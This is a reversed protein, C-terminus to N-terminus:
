NQKIILLSIGGVIFVIIALFLYSFLLGKFDIIVALIPLMIITFLSNIFASISIVTARHYSNTEQHIADKIVINGASESSRLLAPFLLSGIIMANIGWLFTFGCVTLLWILILTQKLGVLAEFKYTYKSTIASILSFFAFALGYAKIPLNTIEFYPNITNFLLVSSTSLVAFFMLLNRINKNFFSFKISSLLHMTPHQNKKQFTAEVLFGRLILILIYLIGAIILPFSIDINAIFGASIMGIITFIQTIMNYEGRIKKHQKELKMKKLTDFFLSEQTGSSLAMAIGFLFQAVIINTFDKAIIFAFISLLMFLSQIILTRKRGLYDAIIGSPIESFFIVVFLVTEGILVQSISLNVNIMQYIVFVPAWIQCLGILAGEIKFIVINRKLLHM